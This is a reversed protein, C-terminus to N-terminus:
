WFLLWVYQYSVDNTRRGGRFVLLARENPKDYVEELVFTEGKHIINAEVIAEFQDPLKPLSPGSWLFFGYFLFQFSQTSLGFSCLFNRPTTCDAEDWSGQFGNKFTVCPKTTDDPEGPAWNTYKAVSGDSYTYNGNQWQARSLFFCIVFRLHCM